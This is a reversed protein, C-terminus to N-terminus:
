LKRLAVLHPIAVRKQSYRPLNKAESGVQEMVGVAKHVVIDGKELGMM